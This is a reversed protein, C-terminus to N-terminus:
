ILNILIIFFILYTKLQNNIRKHNNFKLKIMVDAVNKM